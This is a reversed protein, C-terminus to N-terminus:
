PHGAPTAAPAAAATPAAAPPAAGSIGALGRALPWAVADPVKEEQFHKGVLVALFVLGNASALESETAFGLRALECGTFLTHAREAGSQAFAAQFTAAGGPCAATWAAAESTVVKQELKPRNPIEVSPVTALQAALTPVFSCSEALSGALRRLKYDESKTSALDGKTMALLEPDCGWATSWWGLLLAAGVGM